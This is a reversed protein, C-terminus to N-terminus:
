SRSVIPGFEEYVAAFANTTDMAPSMNMERGLARRELERLVADIDDTEIEYIALYPAATRDGLNRALRFRRASRVGPLAVVEALHIDQYWENYEAERGEAPNSMVVMRYRAM